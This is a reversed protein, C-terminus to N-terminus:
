GLFEKARKECIDALEPSKIQRVDFHVANDQDILRQLKVPKKPTMEQLYKLFRKIHVKKAMESETATWAKGSPQKSFTNKVKMIEDAYMVSWQAKAQGPVFCKIITAILKERAGPKRVIKYPPEDQEKWFALETASMEYPDLPVLEDPEYIAECDLFSVVEDCVARSILGRATPSWIVANASGYVYIYAPIPLIGSLAIEELIQTQRSVPASRFAESRSLVVASRVFQMVLTSDAPLGMLAGYHEYANKAKPTIAKIEEGSPEPEVVEAIIREEKIEEDAM